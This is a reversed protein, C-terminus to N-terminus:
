HTHTKFDRLLEALEPSRVKQAANEPAFWKRRREHKEPFDQSMTQVHLAFVDVLILTPPQNPRHKVHLFQGLGAKSCRGTVGAEEWAEQVATESPTLGPILWGKPIIWRQAQRTTILLVEPQGHRIRYCLAASQRLVPHESTEPLERLVPRANM